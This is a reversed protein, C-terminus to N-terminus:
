TAQFGKERLVAEAVALVDAAAIDLMCVPTGLLCTTAKGKLVTVPTYCPSCALSKHVVRHWKGRPALLAPDTPGFVSVTPTGVAAAIHLPGSDNGIFLDCRKLLAATQLLTARGEARIVPPQYDDRGLVADNIVADDANGIFLLRAGFRQNLDRCVDRYGAVSWRKTLMVTGPNIGGGPFIAILPGAGVAGGLLSDAFAETEDTVQLELDQGEPGLGLPRLCDLYRDVEHAECRYPVSHTLSFGQGEWNFGIRVPVGALAPLLAAGASRHLVLVADFRGARIAQVAKWARALKRLLNVRTYPDYELIGSVAAHHSVLERCGPSVMYSIRARPFHTHLARLLPTSFLIDGICCLKIVLINQIGAAVLPRRTSAFWWGGLGFLLRKM